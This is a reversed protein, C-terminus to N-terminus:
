EHRVEGGLDLLREICRRAGIFCNRNVRAKSSDDDRRESVFRLSNAAVTLLMEPPIQDILAVLDSESMFEDHGTRAADLDIIEATVM